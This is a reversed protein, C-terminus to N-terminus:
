LLLVDANHNWVIGKWPWPGKTNLSSSPSLRHLRVAAMAVMFRCSNLCAWSRSRSFKKLRHLSPPRAEAVWGSSGDVSLWMDSDDQELRLIGNGFCCGGGWGGSQWMCSPVLSPSLPDNASQQLRLSLCPCIDDDCAAKDGSAVFLHHGVQEPFHTCM